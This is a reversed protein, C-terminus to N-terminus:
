SHIGRRQLAFRSDLVSIGIGGLSDWDRNLIITIRFQKELNKSVFDVTSSQDYVDSACQATTISMAIAEAQENTLDKNQAMIDMKVKNIAHARLIRNEDDIRGFFSSVRM